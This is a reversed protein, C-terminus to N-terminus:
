VRRIFEYTITQDNLNIIIADASARDIVDFFCSTFTTKTTPMLKDSGQSFFWYQSVVGYKSVRIGFNNLCKRKIFNFINYIWWNIKYGPGTWKTTHVIQGRHYTEFFQTSSLVPIGCVVNAWSLKYIKVPVPGASQDTWPLYQQNNVELPDTWSAMTLYTYQGNYAPPHIWTHSWPRTAQNTLPIGIHFSLYRLDSVDETLNTYYKWKVGQDDETVCDFFTSPLLSDTSYFRGPYSYKPNKKNPSYYDYSCEFEVNSVGAIKEKTYETIDDTESNMYDGQGLARQGVYIKLNDDKLTGGLCIYWDMVGLINNLISMMSVNDEELINNFWDSNTGQWRTSTPENTDVMRNPVVYLYGIPADTVSNISQPVGEINHPIWEGNIHTKTSSPTIGIFHIDEITFSSNISLGLKYLIWQVLNILRYSRQIGVLQTSNNELYQWKHMYSKRPWLDINWFQADYGAFFDYDTADSYLVNNLYDIYEIATFNYCRTEYDYNKSSITGLFITVDNLIVSILDGEYMQTVSSFNIETIVKGGISNIRDEIDDISVISDSMDIHNFTWTDKAMPDEIKVHLYFTMM